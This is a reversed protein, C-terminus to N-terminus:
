AVEKALEEIGSFDVVQAAKKHKLIENDFLAIRELFFNEVDQFMRRIVSKNKILYHDNVDNRKHKMCCDILREDNTITSAATGWTRRLDHHSILKKSIMGIAKFHDKCDQSVYGYKESGEYEFVFKGVKSLQKRRLMIERVMETMPFIYTLGNKTDPYTITNGEFDVQTWEMPAIDISRGSQLLSVMMYDSILMQHRNYNIVASWWKYFEVKDFDVFNTRAESKEWKHHAALVDFPNRVTASEDHEDQRSIYFNYASSAFKFAIQHTRGIPRPGEKPMRAPLAVAYVNFRDLVEQRKIERFPRDLWNELTVVLHQDWAKTEENFKLTQVTRESMYKEALSIDRLTAESPKHKKQKIYDEKYASILWGLTEAEFAKEQKKVANPNIGNVVGALTEKARKLAQAVTILGYKGLKIRVPKSKTGDNIRSYVIFTKSIAGVRLALGKQNTAHYTKQAGEVFPIAKINEENFVIHNDKDTTAM